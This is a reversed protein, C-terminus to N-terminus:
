RGTQYINAILDAVHADFFESIVFGGIALCVIAIIFRAM